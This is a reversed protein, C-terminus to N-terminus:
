ILVATKIPREQARTQLMSLKHQPLTMTGAISKELPAPLAIGFASAVAEAEEMMRRVITVVNPAKNIEGLTAATLTAVPNWCLSNIMKMWIEARINDRVPARLGAAAM